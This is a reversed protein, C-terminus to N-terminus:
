RPIIHVSRHRILRKDGGRAADNNLRAADAHERKQLLASIRHAKNTRGGRRLFIINHEIAHTIFIHEMSNDAKVAIIIYDAAVVAAAPLASVPSPIYYRDDILYVSVTLGLFRVTEFISDVLAKPARRQEFSYYHLQFSLFLIGSNSFFGANKIKLEVLFHNKQVSGIYYSM